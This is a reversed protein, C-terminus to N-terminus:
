AKRKKAAREGNAAPAEHEAPFVKDLGQWCKYYDPQLKDSQAAWPTLFLQFTTEFMFAMDGVQIREAKLEAHTAANFTKADPGHPTMCSHLSAGGPVFAGAKAEYSGKILGMFETMTNRHYYPPRFTSEHVSWRPPFIVFDAVAVGPELSQCTLVTFISPDMHDKTVSNVAIFHDLNYKFPVYNGHWAVVDFVSRKSQARFLKGAFKNYIAFDTAKDEFAAVPAMFDRPNALGNAGIPGLDPIKFHGQFVELVYGRSPGDPVHVAFRLGRPIVVIENPAVFLWGLETQINLAGLQPVILLDGDSNNFAADTMDANCAYMHIALGTKSAPSGTGMMTALGQVFHVKTGAAPMDMPSWRLQNPNVAGPTAGFAATDLLPSEDCPAFPDHAVSPVMRYVWTRQNQVRPATFATGSLQEAYLGQAVKQPTIQGVPLVGKVAESEFHNAQGSQYAYTDKM